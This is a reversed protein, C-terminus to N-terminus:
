TRVLALRLRVPPLMSRTLSAIPNTIAATMEGEAAYAMGSRQAGCTGTGWGWTDVVCSRREGSARSAADAAFAEGDCSRREGSARSAARSTATAGVSLGRTEGLRGAGDGESPNSHLSAAIPAATM